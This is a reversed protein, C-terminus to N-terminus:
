VVYMCVFVARVIFLMVKFIEARPRPRIFLKGLRAVTAIAEISRVAVVVRAATFVLAALPMQLVEPVHLGEPAGAEPSSTMMTGPLVTVTVPLVVQRDNVNVFEEALVAATTTLEPSVSVTVTPM